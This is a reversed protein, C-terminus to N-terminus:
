SKGLLSPHPEEYFAVPHKTTYDRMFVGLDDAVQCIETVCAELEKVQVKRKEGWPFKQGIGEAAYFDGGETTWLKHIYKNRHDAAKSARDLLESFRTGFEALGIMEKSAAKIMDIRAKNNIIAYYAAQTRWPPARLIASLSMCLQHEVLAWTGAIEGLVRAHEPHKSLDYLPLRIAKYEM